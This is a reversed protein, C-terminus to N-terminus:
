QGLTDHSKRPFIHTYSRICTKSLLRPFARRAATCVAKRHNKFIQKEM